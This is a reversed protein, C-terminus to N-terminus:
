ARCIWLEKAYRRCDDSRKTFYIEYDIDLSEAATKIENILKDRNRKKGSNPNLIFVHKM